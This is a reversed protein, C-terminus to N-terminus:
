ERENSTTKVKRFREPHFFCESVQVQARMSAPWRHKLDRRENVAVSLSDKSLMECQIAYRM